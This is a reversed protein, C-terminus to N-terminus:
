NKLEVSQIDLEYGFAANRVHAPRSWGDGQGYDVIVVPKGDVAVTRRAATTTVTARALAARIPAEPGYAIAMSALIDAPRFVPPLWPAPEYQLDRGNWGITLARRGLGDVAVLDLREPTIAIQAEFSFSQGRYRAVIMQQANVTGGLADPPPVKYLVKPAIVATDDGVGPPLQPPMPACAAVAMSLALFSRRIM